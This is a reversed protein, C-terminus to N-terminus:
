ATQTADDKKSTDAAPAEKVDAADKKPENQAPTDAKADDKKAPEEAKVENEHKAAGEAPKAEDSTTVASSDKVDAEQTTVTSCSLCIFSVLVFLILNKM